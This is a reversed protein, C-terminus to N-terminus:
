QLYKFKSLFLKNKEEAEEMQKAILFARRASEQKELEAKDSLYKDTQNKSMPTMDQSGRFAQLQTVSNFQKSPDYDQESVPIVNESHAVKVDEYQLKSFMSSGYHEPAQGSLDTQSTDVMDQIGTYKVLDMAKRKEDFFAQKMDRMNTVKHADDTLGDDSSLWDRYGNEQFENKMKHEEFLENFVKNFDKKERIKAIFEADQENGDLDERITADTRHRFDFMFKLYKFAKVFFFFVEKDLNSKDPHTMLVMKKANKLEFSGFNESLNFLNLIDKLSYNEINLDLNEM